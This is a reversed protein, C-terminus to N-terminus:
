FRLINILRVCCVVVLRVNLSIVLFFSLIGAFNAYTTLNPVSTSLQDSVHQRQLLSLLQNCQEHTLGPIVPTTAVNNINSTSTETSSKTEPQSFQKSVDM